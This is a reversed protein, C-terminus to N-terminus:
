RPFELGQRSTYVILKDPLTSFEDCCALLTCQSQDPWNWSVFVPLGLPSQLSTTLRSLHKSSLCRFCDFAAFRLNLLAPTLLLWPIRCPRGHTTMVGGVGVGVGMHLPNNCPSYTGMVLIQGSGRDSQSPLRLSLALSLNHRAMWPCAPQLVSLVLHNHKSCNM